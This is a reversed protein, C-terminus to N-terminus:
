KGGRSISLIKVIFIHSCIVFSFEQIFVFSFLGDGLIVAKTATATASSTSVKQQKRKDELPGIPIRVGNPLVISNNFNPAIWGLAKVSHYGDPARELETNPTTVEYM